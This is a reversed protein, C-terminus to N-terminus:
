KTESSQSRDHRKAGSLLLDRWLWWFARVCHFKDAASMDVLPLKKEIEGMNGAWAHITEINKVTATVLVVSLLTTPIMPPTNKIKNRKM